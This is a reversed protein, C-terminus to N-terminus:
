LCAQSWNTVLADLVELWKPKKEVETAECWGVRDSARAGRTAQKLPEEYSETM